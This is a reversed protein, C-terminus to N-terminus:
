WAASVCWSVQLRKSGKDDHKAVALMMGLEKSHMSLFSQHAPLETGDESVLVCDPSCIQEDDPPLYSLLQQKANAM